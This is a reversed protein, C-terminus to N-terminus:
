ANDVLNLLVQGLRLPDGILETPLEPALQFILELGKEEARLALVTSLRALVARLDFRIHELQLKGAEIKSFDLIDNIIDLLATAAGDINSLYSRQKLNLETKQALYTLGLIAHIPTRIEHSM